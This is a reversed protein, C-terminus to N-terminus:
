CILETYYFSFFFMHYIYIIIYLSLISLIFELTNDININKPKFIKNMKNVIKNM